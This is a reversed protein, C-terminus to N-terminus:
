NMAKVVGDAFADVAPPCKRLWLEPEFLELECLSLRDDNDWLIDVRAYTIDVGSKSVIDEAFKIEEATPTYDHVTGGRNAQVRFDGEAAKKLIAHTFKGGLVMYSVEGRSSINDQYEQLLMCKDRILESFIDEHEKIGERGFRYTHWAGGSIAPKLIFKDWGTEAAIEALTREDDPNVSRPEIFVTAPMNIGAKLLDLMYHKDINRLITEIPNIFKTVEATRELWPLFEDFRTFYDWPTRIVVNRTNSWDFDPDDWSLRNVRLGRKELAESLLRDDLVIDSIFEDGEPASLYKEQTLLMIDYEPM